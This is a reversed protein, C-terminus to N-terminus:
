MVPFAVSFSASTSVTSLSTTATTLTTVYSPATYSTAGTAIPFGTDFASTVPVGGIAHTTDSVDDTVSDGPL